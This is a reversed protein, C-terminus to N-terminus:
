FPNVCVLSVGLAGEVKSTFRAVRGGGWVVDVWCVVRGWGGLFLLGGRLLRAKRPRNVEAAHRM